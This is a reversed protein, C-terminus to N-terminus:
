SFFRKHEHMPISLHQQYISIIGFYKKPIVMRQYCKFFNFRYIAIFKHSFYRFSKLGAVKGENCKVLYAVM